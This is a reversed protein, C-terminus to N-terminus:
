KLIFKKIIFFLIVFLLLGTLGIVPYFWWAKETTVTKTHTIASTLHVQKVTDTAYMRRMNSSISTVSDVHLHVSQIRSHDFLSVRGFVFSGSPDLIRSAHSVATDPRRQEADGATDFDIQLDVGKASLIRNWFSSDITTAQSVTSSSDKREEVSKTVTKATHCAGMAVALLLLPLLKRLARAKAELYDADKRLLAGIKYRGWLWSLIAEIAIGVLVGILFYTM